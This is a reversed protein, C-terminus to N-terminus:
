LCQCYDKDPNRICKCDGCGVYSTNCLGGTKGTNKNHCDYGVGLVYCDGDPCYGFCFAQASGTSMMLVALALCVVAGVQCILPVLQILRRM